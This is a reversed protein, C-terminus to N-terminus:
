TMLQIKPKDPQIIVSPELLVKFEFDLSNMALMNIVNIIEEKETVYYETFTELTVRQEKHNKGNARKTKTMVADGNEDLKPLMHMTEKRIKSMLVLVKSDPDYIGESFPSDNDFPMLRFSKQNQWPSTVLMM